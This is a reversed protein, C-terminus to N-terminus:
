RVVASLRRTDLVTAWATVIANVAALVVMSVTVVLLVESV